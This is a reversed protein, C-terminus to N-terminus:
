SHKNRGQEDFGVIVIGNNECPSTKDDAILFFFIQFCAISYNKRKNILAFGQMCVRGEEIKQILCESRNRM